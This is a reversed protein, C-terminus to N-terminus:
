RYLLMGEWNVIGIGFILVLLVSGMEIVLDIVGLMLNRSEELAKASPKRKRLM